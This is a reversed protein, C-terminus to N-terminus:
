SIVNVIVGLVIAVPFSIMYALRRSGTSSNGESVIELPPFIWKRVPEGALGMAAGLAGFSAIATWAEVSIHGNLVLAYISFVALFILTGIIIPGNFSHVWSWRPVGKGIEEDLRSFAQRAWGQDSSSVEIQVGSRYGSRIMEVSLRESREPFEAKLSISGVSRRDIEPLVDGPSGSIADVGEVFSLCVSASEAKGLLAKSTYSDNDERYREILKDIRSAHLEELVKALREIDDLSGCWAHHKISKSTSRIVEPSM